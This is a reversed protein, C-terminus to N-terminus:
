KVLNKVMDWLFLAAGVVLLILSYMIGTGVWKSTSSGEAVKLKGGADYVANSDALVFSIVLVVLLVGVGMLVQKLMAPDKFINFISFLIAMAATIVLVLLAFDVMTYKSADGNEDPRLVFLIVGILVVVWSIIKLFSSKM